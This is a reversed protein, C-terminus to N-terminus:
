IGAKAFEGVRGALVLVAGFATALNYRRDYRFAFENLYALPHRVEVRVHHTGELWTKLSSVASHYRRLADSTPSAISHRYGSLWSNAPNGDAVSSAGPEIADRIFGVLNAATGTEVLGFRVRGRREGPDEAAGVIMMAATAGRGARGPERGGVCSGDVEVRGILESRGPAVMAHRLKHLM